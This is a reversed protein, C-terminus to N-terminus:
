SAPEDLLAKPVPNYSLMGDLEKKMMNFAAIECVLQCKCGTKLNKRDELDQLVRNVGLKLDYLGCLRNEKKVKAIINM